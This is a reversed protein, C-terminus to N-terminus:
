KWVPPTLWKTSTVLLNTSKGITWVGDGVPEGEKAGETAIELETVAGDSLQALFDTGSNAAELTSMGTIPAIMWLWPGEIIPGETPFGPNNGTLIPVKGFLEELPSFDLIDNGELSLLVLDTLGALPSSM